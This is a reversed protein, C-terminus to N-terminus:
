VMLPLLPHSSFLRHFKGCTRAQDSPIPFIKRFASFLNTSNFFLVPLNSHQFM